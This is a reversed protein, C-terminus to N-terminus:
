RYKNSITIAEYMGHSHKKKNIWCNMIKEIANKYCKTTQKLKEEDTCVCTWAFSSSERHEMPRFFLGIFTQDWCNFKGDIKRSYNPKHSKKLQCNNYISINEVLLTFHYVIVIIISIKESQWSTQLLLLSQYYLISLFCIRIRIPIFYKWLFM